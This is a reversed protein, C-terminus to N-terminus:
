PHVWRSNSNGNQGPSPSESGGGGLVGLGRTLVFVTAAVVLGGALVATRGKSLHREYLTGVFGPRLTVPEGSWRAVTGDIFSVYMVDVTFTSDTRVSDLMGEISTVFPGVQAAMGVRGADNLEAVVGMGPTPLSTLPTRAYCGGLASVAAAMAARRVMAAAIRLSRSRTLM